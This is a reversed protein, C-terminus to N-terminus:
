WMLREGSICPLCIRTVYPLPFSSSLYSICVQVFLIYWCLSTLAKVCLAVCIPTTTFSSPTTTMETCLGNQHIIPIGLQSVIGGTNRKANIVIFSVLYRSASHIVNCALFSLKNWQVLCLGIHDIHGDTLLPHTQVNRSNKRHLGVEEQTVPTSSCPTM